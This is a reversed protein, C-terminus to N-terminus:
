DLSGHLALALALVEQVETTVALADLESHSAWYVAEADDAASAQGHWERILYEHIEYGALRVVTVLEARTGRLATEELLERLAADSSAEGPEVRGGPLSWSGRAPARGRRILLVRGTADFVIAAAALIVRTHYM